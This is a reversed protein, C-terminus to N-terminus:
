WEYGFKRIVTHWRFSLTDICDDDQRMQKICRCLWPVFKTAKKDGAGQLNHLCFLSIKADYAVQLKSLSDM